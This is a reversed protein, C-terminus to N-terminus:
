PPSLLKLPLVPDSVPLGCTTLLALVLAAPVEETFGDLEPWDTVKVAVTAGTSGPAPTGVPVTCNISPAEASPPGWVRVLPCAVYVVEDRDPATWALVAAYPRSASGHARFPRRHPCLHPHHPQDSCPSGCPSRYRWHGSGGLGDSFQLPDDHVPQASAFRARLQFNYSSNPHLANARFPMAELATGVGWSVLKTIFFDAGIFQFLLPWGSGQMITSSEM